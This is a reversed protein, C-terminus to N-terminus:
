ITKLFIPESILSRLLLLHDLTFNHRSPTNITFHRATPRPFTTFFGFTKQYIVLIKGFLNNGIALYKEIFIGVFTVFNRPTSELCGSLCNPCGFSLRSSQRLPLARHWLYVLCGSLRYLSTSQGFPRVCGSPFYLCSYLCCVASPYIDYTAPCIDYTARCFTRLMWVSLILCDTLVHVCKRRYRYFVERSM